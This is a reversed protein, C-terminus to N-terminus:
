SGYGCDGGRVKGTNTDRRFMSCHSCCKDHTVDGEIMYQAYERVQFTFVHMKFTTRLTDVYEALHQVLESGIKNPPGRPGIHLGKRRNFITGPSVGCAAAAAKHTMEQAEVAKAAEEVSLRVITPSTPQVTSSKPIHPSTGASQSLLEVTGANKFSRLANNIDDRTVEACETQAAQLVLKIRSGVGQQVHAIAYKTAV